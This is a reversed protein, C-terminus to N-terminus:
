SSFELSLREFVLSPVIPGDGTLQPTGIRTVCGGLFEAPHVRAYARRRSLREGQVIELELVWLCPELRMLRCRDVVEGIPRDDVGAGSPMSINSPSPLPPERYSRRRLTGPGVLRGVLKGERALVRSEAAFGADDYVGGALGRAHLPDDAVSWGVGLDITPPVERVHAWGVAALVIPAAAAPLFTAMHSATRRNALATASEVEGRARADRWGALDRAAVIRPADSRVVGWVRHRRRVALWGPAGILVEATTGGEIWELTPSVEMEELLMSGLPLTQDPDLDWTDARSIRHTDPSEGPVVHDRAVARDLAWRAAERSFGSTAAFGAGEGRQTVLRIALGSEITRSSDLGGHSHGRQVRARQAVKAYLEVAVRPARASVDRWLARAHEAVVEIELPELGQLESM